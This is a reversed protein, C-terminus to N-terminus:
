ILHTFDLDNEETVVGRAEAPGSRPSLASTERILGAKLLAALARDFQPQPVFSSQILGTVTTKGDVRKLIESQSQPLPYAQAKLQM